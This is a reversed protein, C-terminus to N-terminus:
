HVFQLLLLWLSVVKTVKSREGQMCARIIQKRCAVGAENCCGLCSQMRLSEEWDPPMGKSWFTGDSGSGIPYFAFEGKAKM